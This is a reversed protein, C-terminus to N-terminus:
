FPYGSREYDERQHIRSNGYGEVLYDMAARALCVSTAVILNLIITKVWQQQMGPKPIEPQEPQEDIGSESEIDETVAKM